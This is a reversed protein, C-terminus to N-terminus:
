YNFISTDMESSSLIDDLKSGFTSTKSTKKIGDWYRMTFTKLSLYNFLSQFIETNIFGTYFRVDCNRMINAFTKSSSFIKEECSTNEKIGLKTHKSDQM